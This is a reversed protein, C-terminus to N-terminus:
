VQAAARATDLQQQTNAAASAQVGEQEATAGVYQTYQLLLLLPPRHHPSVHEHERSVVLGFM